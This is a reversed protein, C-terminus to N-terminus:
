VNITVIHRFMGTNLISNFLLLCITEVLVMRHMVCCVATGRQSSSWSLVMVLSVAAKMGGRRAELSFFSCQKVGPLLYMKRANIIQNARHLRYAGQPERDLFCCCCRPQQYSFSTKLVTRWRLTHRSTNTQVMNTWKSPGNTHVMHGLTKLLEIKSGKCHCVINGSNM